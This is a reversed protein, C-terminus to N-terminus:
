RLTLQQFQSFWSSFDKSAQAVIVEKRYRKRDFGPSKLLELPIVPSPFLGMNINTPVPDARKSIESILAGIATTPPMVNVDSQCLQKWIEAAVFLGSAASETYGEVGTIQGAFFLRPYSKSSMDPSLVKASNIFTNRHISGLKLFQANAFGPIMRFVELQAGYTLRNQFGVLNFATGQKNEKRLQVVAYPLRVGPIDLGVPKMCSFRATSRGRACMEDLPLCAEFFKPTEFSKLPVKPAAIIADVFAEYDAKDHFPANLYDASLAPDQHRDKFYLQSYDLTDGDVVPAIADYFYLDDNGTIEKQIWSTMGEHTLPGTAVVVYAADYKSMLELPNEVVADVIEINPHSQLKTTVNRAFADRDVALASGAPVACIQAESLILSGLQQMETKMLGHASYPDTSKLSNTCVLEAFDATKQAENPSIRKSEVLVVQVGRSALFWAVETGAMGAGIVVVKTNVSSKSYQSLENIRTVM